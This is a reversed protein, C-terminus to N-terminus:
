TYSLAGASQITVSARVVDDVNPTIDISEIYGNGSFYHTGSPDLEIKFTSLTSSRYASWLAAQGDDTFDLSVLDFTLTWEELTPFRVRAASGYDTIDVMNFKDSLKVNAAGRILTSGIKVRVNVGPTPTVM